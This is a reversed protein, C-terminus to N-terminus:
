LQSVVRQKKLMETIAHRKETLGLVNHINIIKRDNGGTTVILDGTGLSFGNRRMWPGLGVLSLFWGLWALGLLHNRFPDTPQIQFEVGMSDYTTEGEGMETVVKIQGPVFEVYIRHDILWFAINWLIFMFISIMMYGALNIRVDLMLLKEAINRLQDFSYLLLLMIIIAALFLTATLGRLPVNTFFIVVMLITFFVVGYFPNKAIIREPKELQDAHKGSFLIPIGVSGQSPKIERIGDKDTITLQTANLIEADSPLLGLRHNDSLTLFAFIFGFFWVPWYYILMTHQHIRVRDRFPHDGEPSPPLQSPNPPVTTAM